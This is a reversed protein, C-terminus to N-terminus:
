EGEYLWDREEAEEEPKDEIEDFVKEREPDLTEKPPLSRKLFRARPARGKHGIGTHTQSVEQQSEGLQLFGTLNLYPIELV